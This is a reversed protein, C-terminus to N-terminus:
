IRLITLCRQTLHEATTDDTVPLSTLGHVEIAQIMKKNYLVSRKIFQGILFRRGEPQQKM